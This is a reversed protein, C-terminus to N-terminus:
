QSPDTFELFDVTGEKGQREKLALKSVEQGRTM